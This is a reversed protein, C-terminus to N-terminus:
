SATGQPSRSDTSKPASAMRNVTSTQVSHFTDLLNVPVEEGAATAIRRRVHGAYTIAVASMLLTFTLLLSWFVYSAVGDGELRFQSAIPSNAINAEISSFSSRGMWAAGVGFLSIVGLNTVVSVVGLLLAAFMWAQPANTGFLTYTVPVPGAPSPLLGVGALQAPGLRIVEPQGNVVLAAVYWTRSAAHYALAAFTFVLVLCVINRHNAWKAVSPITEVDM